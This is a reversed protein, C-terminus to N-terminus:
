RRNSRIEPLSQSHVNANPAIKQLHNLLRPLFVIEALDDDSGIGIDMTLRQGFILDLLRQAITLDIKRQPIERVQGSLEKEALSEIRMCESADHLPIVWEDAAAHTRRREGLEPVHFDARGRAGAAQEFLDQLAVADSSPYDKGFV